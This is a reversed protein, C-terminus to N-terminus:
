VRAGRSAARAVLEGVLRSKGIGAEGGILVTAAEGAAARELAAALARSEEVRVIFEPSAIRAMARTDWGRDPVRRRRLDTMQGMPRRPPRQSCRAMVAM